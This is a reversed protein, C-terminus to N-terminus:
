FELNGTLGTILASVTGVHPVHQSVYCVLVKFREVGTSTMPRKWDQIRHIKAKDM